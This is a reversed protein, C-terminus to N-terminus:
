KKSKKDAWKAITFDFAIKLILFFILILEDSIKSQSWCIVGIIITGISIFNLLQHYIFTRKADYLLYRRPMFFTFQDKFHYLWVVLPFLVWLEEKAFNWVELNLQTANIDRITLFSNHLVFILISFLTLFILIALLFRNGNQINESKSIKYLRRLFSFESAIQDVLYYVAIITLSWDFFFFGVLPFIIEILYQQVFPNRFKEKWTSM